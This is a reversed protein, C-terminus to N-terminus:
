FGACVPTEVLLVSQQQFRARYATRLSNIRAAYSRVDPVLVILDKSREAEIRGMPNKWQGYVDSVSFGDPFRSTVEGDVFRQWETDPVGGPQGVNGGFFFDIRTMPQTGVPCALPATMRAPPTEPAAACSSLWLGLSIVLGRRM